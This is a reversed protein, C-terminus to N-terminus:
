LVCFLPFVLFTASLYWLSPDHAPIVFTNYFVSNLTLEEPLKSLEEILNQGTLGNIILSVTFGLLVSIIIYPIFVKFKKFTYKISKKFRTELKLIRNTKFHAATFYGSIILFVEVLILGIRFRFNGPIGNPDIYYLFACHHVVIGIACIFRILDIVYTHSKKALNISKATKVTRAM